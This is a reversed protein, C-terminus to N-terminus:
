AEMPQAAGGGSEIAEIRGLMDEQWREYDKRKKDTMVWRSQLMTDSKQMHLAETLKGDDEEGEGAQLGDMDVDGEEDAGGGPYNHQQESAVPDGDGVILNIGTFWEGNQWGSEVVKAVATDIDRAGVDSWGIWLEDEDMGTVAVEEPARSLAGLIAKRTQRYEKDDPPTGHELHRVQLAVLFYVAALLPTLNQTVWADTSTQGHPAAISHMGALVTKGIRDSDLDRCMLQISPRVWAPLLSDQGGAKRKAPLLLSSTAKGRGAGAPTAPNEGDRKTATAPSRFAALSQAKSPTPRNHTRPSVTGFLLDTDRVKTSPTRTRGPAGRGGPSAPLVNDLYAYVRRYVKPAIPPRPQIDPLNLSIKLRECAIHCCAYSRAIEEDQKLTSNHRSQALLSSALDVLPPPLNASQTPLLSLLNAEVARSM